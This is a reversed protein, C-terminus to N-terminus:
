MVQAMVAALGAALDAESLSATCRRDLLHRNARCADVVEGVNLEAVDGTAKSWLM